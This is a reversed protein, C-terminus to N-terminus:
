IPALLREPASIEPANRSYFVNFLRVVADQRWQVHRCTATTTGGAPLAGQGALLSVCYFLYEWKTVSFRSGQQAVSIFRFPLFRKGEQKVGGPGGLFTRNRRPTFRELQRAASEAASADFSIDKQKIV